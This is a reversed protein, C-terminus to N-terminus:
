NLGVVYSLSTYTASFMKSRKMKLAGIGTVAFLRVKAASTVSWLEPFSSVFILKHCNFFFM